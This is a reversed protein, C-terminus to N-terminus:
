YVHLEVSQLGFSIKFDERGLTIHTHWENKVTERRKVVTIFFYGKFDVTNDTVFIFQLQRHWPSNRGALARELM